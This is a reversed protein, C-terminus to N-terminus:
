FQDEQGAAKAEELQKRSYEGKLQDRSITLKKTAKGGEQNKAVKCGCACKTGIKGGEEKYHIMDCGCACKKSKTKSSNLKKIHELKKGNKAYAIEDKALFEKELDNRFM